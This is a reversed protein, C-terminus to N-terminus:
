DAATSAAAAPTPRPRGPSVLRPPHVAYDVVPWTLEAVTPNGPGAGPLVQLTGYRGPPPFDQGPPDPRTPVGWENVEPELKADEPKDPTDM